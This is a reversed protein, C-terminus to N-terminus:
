PQTVTNDDREKRPSYPKGRVILQGGALGTYGAKTMRHYCGRLIPCQECWHLATSILDADAGTADAPDKGLRIIDEALIREAAAFQELNARCGTIITPDVNLPDDSVYRHGVRHGSKRERHQENM